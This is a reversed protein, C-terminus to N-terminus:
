FRLVEALRSFQRHYLAALDPAGDREAWRQVVAASVATISAAAAADLDDAPRGTRESIM